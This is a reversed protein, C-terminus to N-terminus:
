PPNVCASRHPRGWRSNASTRAMALNAIGNLTLTQRVALIKGDLQVLLATLQGSTQNPFSTTLVGATGFTSDLSGNSNLRALGILSVGGPFHNGGAVVQGNPQLVIAVAVDSSSGGEGTLDFAPNSFSSDVTGTQNFRVVQTDFDHRGAGTVAEAVLYRGDPQFANPGFFGHSSVMIPAPTSPELAGTPSFEAIATGALAFIDGAADLALATAVGIATVNVMGGSGFSADLSGNSNYRALATNHVCRPCLSAGGGVLIKGDSQILVANAPNSGGGTMVGIFNTTVQSGTGFTTDLTGNTNFRAVAFESRSPSNVPIPRIVM